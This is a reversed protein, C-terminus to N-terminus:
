LVKAQNLLEKKNAPYIHEKQINQNWQRLMEFPLPWTETWGRKRSFPLAGDSAGYPDSVPRFGSQFVKRSVM